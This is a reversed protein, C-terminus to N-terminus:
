GILPEDLSRFVTIPVAMCAAIRLWSQTGGSSQIGIQTFTQLDINLEASM